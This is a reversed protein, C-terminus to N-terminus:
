RLSRVHRRLEDLSYRTGRWDVGDRALALIMSRLFAFLVITTVPAFFIAHWPSVQSIRRNALYVLWIALYTLLGAAMAWGGWAIAALPVVVHIVLSACALLHLAVRFRSVAFGNKEFLRIVALTGEIWRIRVLDPGVVVQQSYGARKVRWGLFLDDLVEMRLSEFGGVQEYVERRVMNFGGVGIFDRARPDSVKWLRMTWQALAQMAPLVAREGLSEFVITPTLVLHDAKLAVAERLALELARPDFLVDGDTLLLWPAIAQKAGLAMAHPKGLWGVPLEHIHITEVRHPSSSGEEAASIADMIKGTDDTSRDDIAIIQLRIGTSALLSRLTAAISGEENLAPIIVTLHPGEGPELQPLTTPDVRTLDPLRRMGRLATAAQYLWAIALVWALLMAIQTMSIMLGMICTDSVRM